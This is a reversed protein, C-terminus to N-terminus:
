KRSCIRRSSVVRGIPLPFMLQILSGFYRSSFM